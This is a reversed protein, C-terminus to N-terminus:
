LVEGTFYRHLALRAAGLPTAHMAEATGDRGHVAVAWDTGAIRDPFADVRLCMRLGAVIVMIQNFDLSGGFQQVATRAEDQTM